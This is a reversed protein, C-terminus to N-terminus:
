RREGGAAQSVLARWWDAFEPTRPFELRLQLQPLVSRDEVLRLEDVLVTIPPGDNIQLTAEVPQPKENM